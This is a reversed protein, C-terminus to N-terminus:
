DPRRSAFRQNGCMYEVPMRTAIQETYPVPKAPDSIYEDFAQLAPNRDQGNRVPDSDQGVVLRGGSHFYLALPKTQKPPWSEKEHWRNMGTEFVLARPPKWDTGKLHRNFFPLEVKERYFEATKSGFAFPGLA